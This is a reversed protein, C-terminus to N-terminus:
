VVSYGRSAAVSDVVSWTQQGCVGDVELKFFQQWSSIAVGTPSSMATSYDGDVALGASALANLARQLVAVYNGRCGPRVTPHAPKDGLANWTQGPVNIVGDVQLRSATQFARVKGDTVPGWYGDVTTAYGHVTLRVQVTRVNASRSGLSLTEARVPDNHVYASVDEGDQAPAASPTMTPTGATAWRSWADESVLNLDLDASSAGYVAGQSNFGASFQWGAWPGQLGCPIAPGHKDLGRAWGEWAAPLGPTPGDPRYVPYRALILDCRRLRGLLATLAGEDDGSVPRAVYDDWYAAGTYIIPESGTGALIADAMTAYWQALALGRVVPKPGGESAYWEADIMGRPVGAATAAAALMGGQTAADASSKPNAFWYLAPVALGAARAGALYEALRFDARGNIGARLIVGHIGAAAMKTFDIAGQNESVDIVARYSM